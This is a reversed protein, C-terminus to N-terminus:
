RLVDPSFELGVDSHPETEWEIREDEWGLALDIEIEVTKDNSDIKVIDLVDINVSVNTGNTQPFQKRYAENLKIVGHSEEPSTVANTGVYLTEDEDSDSLLGSNYVYGAYAGGYKNVVYGSGYGYGNWRKQRNDEKKISTEKWNNSSDTERKIKSNTRTQGVELEVTNEKNAKM